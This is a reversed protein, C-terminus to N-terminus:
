YTGDWTLANGGNNFTEAGYFMYRMTEASGTNWKSLDADFKTRLFAYASRGYNIYYFIQDFNTVTGVDWAEIECYKAVVAAKKDPKNSYYDEVANHLEENSLFPSCIDQCNASVLQRGAGGALLHRTTSLKLEDTHGGEAVYADMLASCDESSELNCDLLYYSQCIANVMGHMINMCPDDELSRGLLFAPDEKEIWAHAQFAFAQLTIAITAVFVENERDNSILNFMMM